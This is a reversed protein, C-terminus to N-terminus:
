KKMNREHNIVCNYIRFENFYFAKEVVEAENYFSRPQYSCNGYKTADYIGEWSTVQKPYEFRSATAYRIGKFTICGEYKSQIGKIKGCPTNIIYDM